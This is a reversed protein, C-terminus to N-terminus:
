NFKKQKNEHKSTIHAHTQLFIYLSVFESKVSSHWRIGITHQNEKEKKLICDTIFYSQLLHSTTM